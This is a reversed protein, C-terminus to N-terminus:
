PEQMRELKGANWGDLTNIDEKSLKGVEGEIISWGCIANKQFIGKKSKGDSMAIYNFVLMTENDVVIEADKFTFTKGMPTFICLMECKM